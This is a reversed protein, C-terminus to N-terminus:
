PKLISIVGRKRSILGDREMEKLIRSVAERASGLHSALEEHTIKINGGTSNEKLFNLIRDSLSSFLAQEMVKISQAFRRAVLSLIHNTVALYKDKIQRFFSAPILLIEAKEKVQLNIKTQFDGMYCSDCLICSEGKKLMFVTIEKFNESSIYARLVGSKVIIYGLCEHNFYTLEGDNLTKAVCENELMKIDDESMDFKDIFESHLIKLDEKGLM